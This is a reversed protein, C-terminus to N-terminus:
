YNSATQVAADEDDSGLLGLTVSMTFCQLLSIMLVFINRGSMTFHLYLLHDFVKILNEWGGSQGAWLRNVM